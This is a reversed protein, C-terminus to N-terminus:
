PVVLEEVLEYLLVTFTDERVEGEAGVSQMVQVWLRADASDPELSVTREGRDGADVTLDVSDIRDAWAAGVRVTVKHKTGVPGSGPDIILTGVLTEGTSSTLDLELPAGVPGRATVQLDVADEGNFQRRVLQTSGADPCGGSSLVSALLLPRIPLRM